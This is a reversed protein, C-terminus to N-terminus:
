TENLSPASQRESLSFRRRSWDVVEHNFVVIEYYCSVTAREPNEIVDARQALEGVVNRLLVSMEVRGTWGIANLGAFRHPADM